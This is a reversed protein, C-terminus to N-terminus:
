RRASVVHELGTALVINSDVVTLRGVCLGAVQQLDALIGVDVDHNQSEHRGEERIATQWAGTETRSTFAARCGLM